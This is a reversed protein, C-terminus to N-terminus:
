GTIKMPMLLETLPSKPDAEKVLIAKEASTFLLLVDDTSINGLLQILTDSKFGIAFDTPLNIDDADVTITESASRSTEIDETSVFFGELCRSFKLLKSASPSMLDVRRVAGLLDKTPVKVQYPPDKPIIRDYQPYKGEIDRISFSTTGLSTQEEGETKKGKQTIDAEFLIRQGDHSVRIMEAKEFASLIARVVNAPLLIGDADGQKLFPIGHDFAYKYMKHGDSAVFTVGDQRVDLLVSCMVPKFEQNSACASAANIAPLLIDRPIEFVCLPEKLEPLHPFEDGPQVPLSFVGSSHHFVALHKEMDIDIDLPQEPLASLIPMLTELSLCFPTFSDDALRLDIPVTLANEPSSGTIYAHNEDIYEVLACELIPLTPKKVIVGSVAKLPALLSKTSITLKM